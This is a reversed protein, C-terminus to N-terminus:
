VAELTTNKTNERNAKTVAEGGDRVWVSASYWWQSRCEAPAGDSVIAASPVTTMLVENFKFM